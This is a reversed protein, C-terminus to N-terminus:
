PTTIETLEDTRENTVMDIALIFGIGPAYYKHEIVDPEAPLTEEVVLCSGNCAAAIATEDGTLSVIEAVDEAERLAFEQRYKDGIQPDALMAIGAQAGDVGAIFSGDLNELYAEEDYNLVREGFYWVNGELDQAYYDHTDEVTKGGVKVVDSVIMTTVGQIVRTDSTVTVVTTEGDGEYKWVTGPILPLYQNPNAATEEPSLFNNPDIEPNYAGKGFSKCLHIRFAKSDKCDGMSEQKEDKAENKCEKREDSDSSNLCKGQDLAYDEQADLKCSKFAKVATLKCLNANKRGALAETTILLIFSFFMLCQILHKYHTRNINIKM